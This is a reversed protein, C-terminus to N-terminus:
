RRVRFGCESCREDVDSVASGCYACAGSEPGAGHDARAFRHRIMPVLLVVAVILAPILLEEGAHGIM